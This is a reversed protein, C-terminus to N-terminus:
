SETIYKIIVYSVPGIVVGVIGFLSYGIFISAVSVIPSLGIENGMIRPELVERSIYCLVCIVTIIIGKYVQSIAFYYIAWPLLVVVAGVMPLADLISVVIGILLAYRNKMLYLGGICLTATVAFIIMQAKLFASFVQKLKEAIGSLFKGYRTNMWYERISDYDKTIYYASILTTIVFIVAQIVVCVTKITGDMAYSVLKSRNEDMFFKVKRGVGDPLNNILRNGQIALKYGIFGFGAAIIGVFLLLTVVSAMAIPLKIKKHLWNAFPRIVGSIGWGLILPMFLPLLYKMVFYVAATTIVLRIM